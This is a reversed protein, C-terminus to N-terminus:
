AAISSGPVLGALHDLLQDPVPGTTDVTVHPVVLPQHTGQMDAPRASIRQRRVAEDCRVQVLLARAAPLARRYIVPSGVSEIVLPMTARGMISVLDEWDGGDARLVDISLHTLGRAVLGRALHTKGVGCAGILALHHPAAPRPYTLPRPASRRQSRM